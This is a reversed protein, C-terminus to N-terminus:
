GSSRRPRCRPGENVIRLTGDSELRVERPGAEGHKLANEILNRRLIAFADPDIDSLAPRAPLELSITGASAAREFDAVVM